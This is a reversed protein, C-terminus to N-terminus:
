WWSVSMAMVQRALEPSNQLLERFHSEVEKMQRELYEKSAQIIGLFLFVVNAIVMVIGKVSPLACIWLVNFNPNPCFASGSSQFWQGNVPTLICVQLTAIASDSDDAKTQQEKLLTDRSELIFRGVRWTWWMKSKNSSHVRCFTPILSQCPTLHVNWNSTLDCGARATNKNVPMGWNACVQISFCASNPKCSKIGIHLYPFPYYYLASLWSFSM